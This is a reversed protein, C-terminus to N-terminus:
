ECEEGVAPVEVVREELLLGAVELVLLHLEEILDEVMEAIKRRLEPLLTVIDSVGVEIGFSPWDNEVDASFTDAISDRILRPSRLQGFICFRQYNCQLVAVIALRQGEACLGEGVLVQPQEVGLLSELVDSEEDFFEFLVLPM